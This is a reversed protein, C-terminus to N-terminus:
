AKGKRANAKDAGNVLRLREMVGNCSLKAVVHSLMSADDNNM